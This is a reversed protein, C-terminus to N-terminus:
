AKTYDFWGSNITWNLASFRVSSGDLWVDVKSISDSTFGNYTHITDFSGACSILKSIGTVSVASGDAQHGHYQRYVAGYIGGSQDPSYYETGVEAHEIGGTAVNGLQCVFGLRASIHGESVFCNAGTLHLPDSTYINRHM